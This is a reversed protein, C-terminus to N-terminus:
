KRRRNLWVFLGYLFIFGPIMGIVVISWLRSDAETVTLHPLSLSKSPVSVANETGCVWSLTRIFLESNGGAVMQNAGEDILSSSGFLALRTQGSWEPSNEAAEDSVTEKKRDDVESTDEPEEVLADEESAEEAEEPLAEEEPAEEAEEPLAEEGSAEEAEEPLAEEEPAEETEVDQTVMVGVAFPGDEDGEEKEYTTMEEVHSKAYSGSGTTLLETVEVGDPVDEQRIGQAAAMLVYGNGGTLSASVETNEITPLLYYPIRVYHNSDREMIVGDTKALGYASLLEGLNPMDASSYDTLILAHGGQGLYAALKEKEAETLDKQPSILLLAGTDEPIQADAMLNLSDISLNEKEMLKRFSDPLEVENHGTITYVTLRRDSTLAAIASTIQGEADFGTAEYSYYNYNMEYEYMDNYLIVRSADECTVILSNESIQDQTYQAAFQPYRVPDKQEVRIHPSLDEYRELLRAIATDENGDQAIVYITVDKDLGTLLEKTTETLVSLQRSSFDLKTYAAPLESVILNLAVVAATVVATMALSYTGFRTRRRRAKRRLRGEEKKQIIEEDFQRKM